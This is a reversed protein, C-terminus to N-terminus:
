ELGLGAEPEGTAGALVERGRRQLRGLYELHNEWQEAGAPAGALSATDAHADLLEYVLTVLASQSTTPPSHVPPRWAFAERL